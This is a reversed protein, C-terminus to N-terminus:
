SGSRTAIEKEVSKLCKKWSESILVFKVHYIYINKLVDSHM